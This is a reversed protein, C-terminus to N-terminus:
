RQSLRLLQISGDALYSKSKGKPCRDSMNEVLSRCLSVIFNCTRCFLLIDETRNLDIDMPDSLWTQSTEYLQAVSQKRVSEYPFWCGFQHQYNVKNRIFSLWNAGNMGQYCLNSCMKDIKTSVNQADASPILSQSLIQNSLEKLENRFTKWFNEHSGGGSAKLHKCHLKRSTSNYQCRYYGTDIKVGKKYGYLDAIEEIRSISQTELQSCSIGLMRLISHAAFFASYYSQIVLWATSKPRLESQSILQISEFSASAMRNCDFAFSKLLTNEYLDQSIELIFSNSQIDTYIEYNRTITWDSFSYSQRGTIKNLDKIWFPRIADNVLSM